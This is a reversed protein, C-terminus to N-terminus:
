PRADSAEQQPKPASPCPRIQGTAQDRLAIEYGGCHVCRFLDDTPQYEFEHEGFGQPHTAEITIITLDPM